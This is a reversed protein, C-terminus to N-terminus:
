KPLVSFYIEDYTLGPKVTAFSQKLQNLVVILALKKSKGKNVIRKYVDKCAKNHKYLSFSCLSLLNRLKRNGVKSIRSWGRM